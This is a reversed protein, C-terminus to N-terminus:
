IDYKALIQAPSKKLLSRIPIQGCLCTIGFVVAFTPVALWWPYYVFTPFIASIKAMLWSTAIYGVFVTLTFLVMSEIFYRYCLNRKSVGIARYIGIEKIDSFIASRMIFYMCLALVVGTILFVIASVVFSSYYDDRINKGTDEPTTVNEKGYKSLLENGLSEPDDSYLLYNMGYTKDVSNAISEMDDLTMIALMSTDNTIFYDDLKDLADNYEITVDEVLQKYYNRSYESDVDDTSALYEDYTSYGYMNSMYIDFGRTIDCGYLNMSAKSRMEDTVEPNFVGAVKFKKGGIAYYEGIEMTGKRVYVTGRELEPLNYGSHELDTYGRGYKSDFKMQVYSYNSYFVEEDDGDVIGVIKYSGFGSGFSDIDVRGLYIGGNGYSRSAKAFIVDKYKSINSVKAKEIIRDALAKTIVIEDDKEMKGVGEIIRRDGVASVPLPYISDVNVNGEYSYGATEYKGFSFSLTIQVSSMPNLNSYNAYSTTYSRVDGSSVLRDIDDSNMADTNVAIVHSNYKQETQMYKYISSGFSASICVMISSFMIMVLVMLIRRKKKKAFNSKFGSKVAGKFNYMSGVKGDSGLPAKLIDPFEKVPAHEKEEYKGEHIVLESSNDMLKLKAGNDSSIYLTGGASVIRIKAPMNSKDGFYEFTFSEDSIEERNMDGLYIENAKKGKYGETVTNEREGIVTGDSIEIVKDCYSDILHAEHTVLIVLRERSIEKLLDMVMVTNQEDLNGTPEDALILEPNKVIARAIAVRQQQGGSLATPLRKRYKLMDVSELAALTRQEIEKEDKVGCLRLSLAVNDFVSMRASLNYNQFIYGIKLNREIDSNPTLRKDDLTVTGSSAGDLGGIVNLLTTKGCGSKGFLAVIGKQPLTMSINNVARVENSRGRNYIKNLNTLKIM